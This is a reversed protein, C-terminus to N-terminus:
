FYFRDSTHHVIRTLGEALVKDKLAAPDNPKVELWTGRRAQQENLADETFEVSVTSNPFRIVLIPMGPRQTTECGLIKTFFETLKEKLDPHAFLHARVGFTIINNEM